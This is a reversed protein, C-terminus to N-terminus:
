SIYVRPVRRSVACLAEYGITNCKAAFSDADEVANRGYIVVEDFVRAGDIDTIDAMLQDMCVKGIIEAKMGRVTILAGSGGASRFIGDAYGIPVTAIRTRRAATFSRGYGIQTGKEVTKIQSIISKLTMVPDLQLKNKLSPSPSLGWLSIGLRVMDFSLEPHAIAAASNSIHCIPLDIGVDRMYNIAFQFSKVQNLTYLVSHASLSDASSFHSFAGKTILHPLRAAKFASELSNEGKLEPFFGIRGMGTDFKLHIKVNVGYELAAASLAKAFPLSYVSLTINEKAAFLAASPDTYGLVLLPAEIGAHRIELAEDISAVAFFDAGLGSFLRALETAGHGYANAKLVVCALKGKIKEKLKLFNKTAASMDIEAWARRYPMIQM